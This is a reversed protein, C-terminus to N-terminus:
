SALQAPYTEREASLFLMESADCWGAPRLGKAVDPWEAIGAANVYGLCDGCAADEFHLYALRGSVLKEIPRWM